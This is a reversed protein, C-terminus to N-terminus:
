THWGTPANKIVVDGNGKPKQMGRPTDLTRRETGIRWTREQMQISSFHFPNSENFTVLSVHLYIHKKRKHGTVSSTSLHSRIWWVSASATSSMDSGLIRNEHGLAMSHCGVWSCQCEGVIGDKRYHREPICRSWVPGACVAGNLIFMLGSALRRECPGLLMINGKPYIFRVWFCFM